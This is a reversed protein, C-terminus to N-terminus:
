ALEEPRAFRYGVGRLTHIFERSSAATLKGRLRSIHTNINYEYSQLEVGWVASLLEQRSFVRGPSNALFFLLDYEVATLPLLAGEVLVERSNLDIRMGPFEITSQEAKAAAASTSARRMLARIRAQFEMTNYPKTIYDDAGTELGLVKSMDDGRATLMLIPLSPLESRLKRCIEVGGLSPLMLDLIVLSFEAVRARELGRRGDTEAQVVFGLEELDQSILELIDADDEVILVRQEM